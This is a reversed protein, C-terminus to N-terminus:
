GRKQEKKLDMLFHQSARPMVGDERSNEELMDIVQDDRDNKTTIHLNSMFQFYTVACTRESCCERDLPGSTNCCVCYGLLVTGQNSGLRSYM